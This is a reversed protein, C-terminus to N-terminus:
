KRKGQSFYQMMGEHLLALGKQGLRKRLEEIQEFPRGTPLDVQVSKRVPKKRNELPPFKPRKGSALALRVIRQADSKDLEALRGVDRKTWKAVRSLVKDRVESGCNEAVKNLDEVFRGDRSITTKGVGYRLGVIKATKLNGSHPSAKKRAGGHQQKLALYYTGRAYAKMEQSYSRRGYHTDFVWDIVAKRDPFEMEVVDYKRGLLAYLRFRTHGDVLTRHGKWIVLPDRPKEVLLLEELRKVEDPARPLLNEFEADIEFDPKLPTIQVEQEGADNSRVALLKKRRLADIIDKLVLAHGQGVQRTLKKDQTGGSALYRQVAIELPLRPALWSALDSVKRWSGDRISLLLRDKLPGIFEQFARDEKSSNRSTAAPSTKM